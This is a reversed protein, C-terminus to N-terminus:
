RAGFQVRLKSYNVASDLLAQAGGMMRQRARYRGSEMTRQNAERTMWSASCTAHAGSISVRSKRTPDMM